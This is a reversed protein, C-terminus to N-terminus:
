RPRSLFEEVLRSKGVGASGLLTFLHCGAEEVAAEYAQRLQALQRERGVM